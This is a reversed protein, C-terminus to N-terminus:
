KNWGAYDLKHNRLVERRTGPYIDARRAIEDIGVAAQRIDNAKRSLDDFHPACNTAVVGQMARPEWLAFWGRVFRGTIPGQYCTAVFSQWLGDLADARLALQGIAAEYDRVAEARRDEQPSVFAPALADYAGPTAPSPLPPSSGGDLAARAHEVSVAFALGNSNVYASTVVGIVTGRRDVLPGGSNGPNIAADTQVLTAGAVERMGSVIGRSVTNHLFGLATGIAIVEQGIRISEATGLPIVPQNPLVGTVKLVAIDFAATTSQVRATTAAGNPRVITVMPNTGVVHVNTLVTDPTVFFGSGRSTATHITVVAPMVNSIVDELALAPADATVPIPESNGPHDRVEGPADYTTRAGASAASPAPSAPAPVFEPRQVQRSNVFWIAAGLVAGSM